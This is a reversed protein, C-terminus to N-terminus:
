DSHSVSLRTPRTGKLRVAGSNWSRVTGDVDIMYIAYDTIADMLLQLRHTDGIRDLKSPEKNVPASEGFWVFTGYRLKTGLKASHKM